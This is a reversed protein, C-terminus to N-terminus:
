GVIKVGFKYTEQPYVFSFGWYNAVCNEFRTFGQCSAHTIKGNSAVVRWYWKNDKGKYYYLKKM